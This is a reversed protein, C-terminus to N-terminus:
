ELGRGSNVKICFKHRGMAGTIKKIYISRLEGDYRKDTHLLIISSLAAPVIKRCGVRVLDYYTQM